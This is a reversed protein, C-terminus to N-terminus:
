KGIWRSMNKFKNYDRIIPMYSISWKAQHKNKINFAYKIPPIPKNINNKYM